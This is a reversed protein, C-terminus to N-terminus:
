AYSYCMGWVEIIQRLYSVEDLFMLSRWAKLVEDMDLPWVFTLWGAYLISGIQFLKIEVLCSVPYIYSANSIYYM